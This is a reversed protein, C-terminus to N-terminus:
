MGTGTEVGERGGEQERVKEGGKAWGSLYPSAEWPSHVFDPVDTQSLVLARGAINLSLM